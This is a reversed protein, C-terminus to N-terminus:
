SKDNKGAPKGGKADPPGHAADYAPKTLSEDLGAEFTKKGLEEPQSFGTQQLFTGQSIPGGALGTKLVDLLLRSDLFCADSFQVVIDVPCRMGERVINMLYPQLATREAAADQRALSMLFPNVVGSWMQAYPAGWVAMKEATAKYRLADYQKADPRGAGLVIKHDFNTILVKHGKTGKVEKLVGKRRPENAFHAPSGAHPGGDISHGLLHQEYVTRAADALQRDGVALSEEIACFHFLTVLDPWGFGLGVNEDKLVNFRFLETDDKTLTVEKPKAKLRDKLAKTIKMADIKEATLNLKITLQENGFDDKYVCQEPPKVIVRGTPQWVAVVNRTTLREKMIDGIVRRIEAANKAKWEVLKEQDKANVARIGPHWEYETEFDKGKKVPTAQLGLLGYLLFGTRFAHIRQIFPMMRSWRRAQVFVNPGPPAMVDDAGYMGAASAEMPVGWRNDWTFNTGDM